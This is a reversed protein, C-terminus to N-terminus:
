ACENEHISGAAFTKRGPEKSSLLNQVDSRGQSVKSRASKTTTKKLVATQASVSAVMTKPVRFHEPYM